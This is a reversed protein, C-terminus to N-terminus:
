GYIRLFAPHTLAPGGQHEFDTETHNDLKNGMLNWKLMAHCMTHRVISLLVM